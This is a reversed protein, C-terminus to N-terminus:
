PESWSMGALYVQRPEGELCERASAIQDPVCQQVAGAAEELWERVDDDECGAALIRLSLAAADLVDVAVDLRANDGAPPDRLFDPNNLIAM